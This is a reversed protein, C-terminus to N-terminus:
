LPHGQDLALLSTLNGGLIAATEAEDLGLAHIAEVERGIDTMPWDSAFTVREVGHRRILDRLRGPALEALTPPWATDVYVPLGLVHDAAEDLLEFGGFHCAVLDLDPLQRVLERVMAPTCRETDGPKGGAGVHMVVVFEGRLADLVALLRPDDLRYNQFIPHVKAGRLRNERLSSLNEEPSLDPHISGFGIYRSRDLTGLFRNAAAVRDGTPAVGLCVAMDVGAADLASELGSVTGDGVRTLNPVASLAKAAVADPWVHAHGDVIV